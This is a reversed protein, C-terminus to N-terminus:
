GSYKLTIAAEFCNLFTHEGTKSLVGELSIALIRGCEFILLSDQLRSTCVLAEVGNCPSPFHSESPSIIPFEGTLQLVSVMGKYWLFLVPTKWNLNKCLLIAVFSKRQLIPMLCTSWQEKQPSVM